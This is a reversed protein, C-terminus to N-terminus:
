PSDDADIDFILDDEKMQEESEQIEKFLILDLTKKQAEKLLTFIDQLGNGYWAEKPDLRAGSDM